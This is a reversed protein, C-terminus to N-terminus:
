RPLRFLLETLEKEVERRRLYDFGERLPFFGRLKEDVVSMHYLLNYGERTITYTVLGGGHSEAKVYGEALLFGISDKWRRSPLGLWRRIWKKRTRTRTM